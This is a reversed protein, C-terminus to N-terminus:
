RFGERRPVSVQRRLSSERGDLVLAVQGCLTGSAGEDKSGDGGDAGKTEPADTLAVQFLPLDVGGLLIEGSGNLASSNSEAVVPFQLAFLRPRPDM